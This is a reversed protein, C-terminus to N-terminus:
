TFYFSRGLRVASIITTGWAEVVAHFGVQGEQFDYGPTTIICDLCSQRRSSPELDNSLDDYRHTRPWGWTRAPEM